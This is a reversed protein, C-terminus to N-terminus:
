KCGCVRWPFEAFCRALWGGPSELVRYHHSSIDPDFSPGLQPEPAPMAVQAAGSASEEQKAEERKSRLFERRRRM